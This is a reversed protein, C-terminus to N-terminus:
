RCLHSKGKQFQKLFFGCYTAKERMTLNLHDLHGMIFAACEQIQYKLQADTRAATFNAKSFTKTKENEPQLDAGLRTKAAFCSKDQVLGKKAAKSALSNPKQVLSLAKKATNSPM